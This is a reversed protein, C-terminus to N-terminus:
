AIPFFLFFICRLLVDSVLNSPHKLSNWVCLSLFVNVYSLCFHFAVCVFVYSAALKETSGSTSSSCLDVCVCFTFTHALFFIVM